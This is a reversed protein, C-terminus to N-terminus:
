PLVGRHKKMRKRRKSSLRKRKKKNPKVHQQAAANHPPVRQPVDVREFCAVFFGDTLDTKPAVRVLREAQEETLGAVARGRRPWEPFNNVLRFRTAARLVQAVVQENEEEHVSCTSYVIRRVAPFNMAHLVCKMQFQALARLRKQLKKTDQRKGDERRVIGSGSCSPDVLVAQVHRYKPLTTDVELFDCCETQVLDSAGMLQMRSRLLAHRDRARDFALLMCGSIGRKRKRLTAGESRQVREWLGHLLAAAHSTKNGPAACADVVVLPRCAGDLELQLWKNADALLMHAPFCSSKGQLVLSGDRVLAHAHLDTGPPLRLLAPVHEDRLCEPTEKTLETVATGAAIKLTNVRVFRPLPENTTSSANTSREQERNEQIVHFIKEIEEKRALILKKVAGGGQISKKRSFLLDCLMVKLLAQRKITKFSGGLISILRELVANHQLAHHALASTTQVTKETTNGSSRCKDNGNGGYLLHKFGGKRSAVGELVRAANKYVTSM